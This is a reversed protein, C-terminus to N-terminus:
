KSGRATSKTNGTGKSKPVAKPKGKEQTKKKKNQDQTKKPSPSKGVTKEGKGNKPNRKPTSNKKISLTKLQNTLKEYEGVTLVKPKALDEKRANFKIRKEERNFQDQKSKAVMTCIQIQIFSDLLKDWGIKCDKFYNSGCQALTFSDLYSNLEDNRSNYIAENERIKVTLIEKKNDLLNKVFVEKFQPTALSDYYKQQFSLEAPLAQGPLIEEFNKLKAKLNQISCTIKSYKISLREMLKKMFPPMSAKFIEVNDNHQIFAPPPLVPVDGTNLHRPPSSLRRENREYHRDLNSMQEFAHYNSM